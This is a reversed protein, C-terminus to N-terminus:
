VPAKTTGPRELKLAALLVISKLVLPALLLKVPASVRLLLPAFATVNVLLMAVESAAEVTTWFRVIMELPAIVSVPIKVTGPMELKLAPALAMVSAKFLTNVPLTSSELLPVLSTLKVSEMAKDKPVDVMPRLKVNTAPPVPIVSAPTIVAVPPVAAVEMVTVAALASTKSPLWALLKPLVAIVKAPVSALKRSMLKRLILAPATNGVLKVDSVLKRLKVM